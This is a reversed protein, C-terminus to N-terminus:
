THTKVRPSGEALDRLTKVNKILNKRNFGSVTIFEIDYGNKPVLECELGASQESSCYRRM